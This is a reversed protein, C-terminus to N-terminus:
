CLVHRQLTTLDSALKCCHVTTHAVRRFFCVNRREPYVIQLCAVITIRTTLPRSCFASHRGSDEVCVSEKM